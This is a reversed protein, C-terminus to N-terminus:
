EVPPQTVQSQSSVALENHAGGIASAGAPQKKWSWEPQQEKHDQRNDENKFQDKKVAKLNVTFGVEKRANLLMREIKVNFKPVKRLTPKVSCKDDDFNTTTNANTACYM